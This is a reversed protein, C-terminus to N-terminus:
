KVNNQITTSDVSSNGETSQEVHFKADKNNKMVNISLTCGTLLGLLATLIYVIIKKILTSKM